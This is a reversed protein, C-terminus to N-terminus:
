VYPPGSFWAVLSKRVGSKVPRVRHWMHSEFFVAYGTDLKLSDYRPNIIPSQHEIDLEGAEYEDPDNLFLSMSVKRVLSNPESGQDNHWDYFDSVDYIGYQAPEICTIKLNWRSDKNIVRMVNDLLHYLKDDNIWKINGQRVNSNSVGSMIEAKYLSDKNKEIANNVVELASESFKYKIYQSGYRM